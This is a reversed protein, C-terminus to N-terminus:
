LLQFQHMADDDANDVKQLEKRFCKKEKYVDGRM